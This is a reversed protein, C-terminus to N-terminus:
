HLADAHGDVRARVFDALVDLSPIGVDRRNNDSLEIAGCRVLKSLARSVSELRMGLFSGLDARTMHMSFQDTRQGRAELCRAWQLLFEGVRADTNLTSMALLADRNRTLQASMGALVVRMLAPESASAHILDSYRVTWVQGGELTTASCCYRGTAIGDFGLWDGKFFLGANQERGDPALNVVKCLGSNIIYITDFPQGCVYIPCHAPVLRRGIPAHQELLALSERWLGASPTPEPSNAAFGHDDFCSSTHASSTTTLM